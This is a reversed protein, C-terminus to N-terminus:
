EKRLASMPDISAAHRGPLYSALLAVSALIAASLLFTLPDQPSVEFLLHRQDLIRSLILTCAVGLGLGLAALRAGDLLVMSMVKAATAGLAVRVGIEQTRSAVTFAIVGYLSAGALLLALTAFGAMLWTRVRQPALASDVYDSLYGTHRIAIAPNLDALQAKLATLTDPPLSSRAALYLGRGVIPALDGLQLYSVYLHPEPSGDLSYQRSSAVVGVITRWPERSDADGIKIRKGIPNGLGPLFRRVFSEDVIAVPVSRANDNRSFLRGTRLPTKVAPLYGSSVCQIRAMNPRAGDTAPKEAIAIPNGWSQDSLPLATTFGATANGPLSDLRDALQAAFALISQSTQYQTDALALGLTVVGGADFGKDAAGLKDLSRIFLGAGALLVFAFAVEVVVLASRLELRIGSSAAGRTVGALRSIRAFPAFGFLLASGAALLFSFALVPLDMRVSDLHPLLEGGTRRVIALLAYALALGLAGGIIGLLGSEVAVQLALRARGAGLAARTVFEAQRTAARAIQLAALSACAVLLLLSVSAYLLLLIGRFDGIVAEKLPRLQVGLYRNFEPYAGELNGAIQNMEAVAATFTASPRLRGVVRLYHASRNSWAAEGGRFALPMWLEYRKEPFVFGAPMVGVIQFPEGNVPVIRGIIGPDGGFQRQWLAHSLIMVQDRGRANEEPRFARGLAPHVGITDFFNASVQLGILIEPQGAGGVSVGSGTYAALSEFTRTRAAWDLYNLMTVQFTQGTQRQFDSIRVLRDAAPYPLPDLVIRKLITFMATNAGLALVLLLVATLSFAKDRCMGRWAFRADQLFTEIPRFTWMEYLEEHIRTTSGFPPPCFDGARMARHFDIEDALDRDLSRRKRLRTFWNM